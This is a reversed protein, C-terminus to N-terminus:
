NNSTTVSQSLTVMSYTKQFIINDKVKSTVVMQVTQYRISPIHTASCHMNITQIQGTRSFYIEWHCLAAM